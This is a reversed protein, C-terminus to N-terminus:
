ALYWNTLYNLFCVRLAFGQTKLFNNVNKKMNGTDTAAM